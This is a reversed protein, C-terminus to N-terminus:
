DSAVSCGPANQREYESKTVQQGDSYWTIEKKGGVYCTTPGDRVDGHWTIEEVVAGDVGYCREIGERKGDVYPVDRCCEGNQFFTVTGHLRGKWWQQTTEPEGSPLFTNKLGHPVSDVFPTRSAPMGNPHYCIRVALVGEQIEDHAALQGYPDRVTRRGVGDKVESDIKQNPSFYTGCTLCGSKWEEKSQPTGDEYWASALVVGDIQYSEQRMPMGTPYNWVALQCSGDDYLQEMQVVSSHPFTEKWRGHPKGGKWSERAMRGDRYTRTIEGSGGREEWEKESGLEPGYQHQWETKVVGAEQDSQRQCSPAALISFLGVWMSVRTIRRGVQGGM